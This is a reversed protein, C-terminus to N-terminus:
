FVEIREFFNNWETFDKEALNESEFCNFALNEWDDLEFSSLEHFNLNVWVNQKSFVSNRHESYQVSYYLQSDNIDTTFPVFGIKNKLFSAALFDLDNPKYLLEIGEAPLVSLYSEALSLSSASGFQLLVKPGNIWSCIEQMQGVTLSSELGVTFGIWEAMVSSAYRADALDRINNFKFNM